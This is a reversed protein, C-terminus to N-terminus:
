FNQLSVSEHIFKGEQELRAFHVMARAVKISEVGKYKEPILFGFIKYVMKAADEGSRKEERPGLLLSPRFIHYEVFGIDAIAEEVEGKVQNYYISSNKDAGLASVLLFQRAGKTRTAQALELPYTLDVKKFAAKSGAKKMTTGLCCFVADASIKDVVSALMDFDVVINELKPHTSDLPKRSIAKVAHYEADNLLLDLLQKGILGTAGAILAVKM